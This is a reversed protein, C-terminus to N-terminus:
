CFRLVWGPTAARRSTRPREQAGVHGSVWGVLM